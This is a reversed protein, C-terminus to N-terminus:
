QEAYLCNSNKIKERDKFYGPLYKTAWNEDTMNYPKIYYLDRPKPINSGNLKWPISGHRLFSKFNDAQLDIASKGKTQRELEKAQEILEHAKPTIVAGLWDQEKEYRSADVLASSVMMEGDKFFDGGGIAGRLPFREKMADALIVSCTGIFFELSGAFIPSRDTDIVLIISDSLIWFDFKVDRINTNAANRITSILNNIKWIADKFNAGEIFASYAQIDFFGVLTNHYIVLVGHKKLFSHVVEQVNNNYKHLDADLERGKAQLAEPRGKIIINLLGASSNIEAKEVQQSVVVFIQSWLELPSSNNKNTSEM